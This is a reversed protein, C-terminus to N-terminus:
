KKKGGKKTGCKKMTKKTKNIKDEEVFFIESYRGSITKNIFEQLRFLLVPADETSTHAVPNSGDDPWEIVFAFKPKSESISNLMKKTIEGNSVPPFTIQKHNILNMKKRIKSIEKRYNLLGM